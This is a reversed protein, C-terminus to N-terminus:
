YVSTVNKSFAPLFNHANVYSDLTTMLKLISDSCNNLDKRIESNEWNLFDNYTFLLRYDANAVNYKDWLLPNEIIACITIYIILESFYDVNISAIFGGTFRSPLQYGGVGRCIDRKGEFQPICLSDYDILKIEGNNTIIINTHQLDGHSINNAHLENAMTMFDRSLKKLVDKNELNASIFEVLNLGDVWEMRLTDYYVGDILIGDNIYEFGVFYPLNYKALYSSIGQYRERNNTITQNWVKLICKEEDKSFLYVMSFGGGWEIPGGSQRNDLKFDKLYPDKILSPYKVASRIEVKSLSM